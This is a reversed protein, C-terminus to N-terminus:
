HFIQSALSDFGLWFTLFALACPWAWWPIHGDDAETAYDLLTAKRWFAKLQKM